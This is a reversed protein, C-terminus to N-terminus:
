TKKSMAMLHALHLHANQAALNRAAGQPPTSTNLHKNDTLKTAERQEKLDVNASSLKKMVDKFETSAPVTRPSNTNSSLTHLSLNIGTTM